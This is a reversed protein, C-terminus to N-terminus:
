PRVGRISVGPEQWRENTITVVMERRVAKDADDDRIRVSDYEDHGITPIPLRPLDFSRDILLSFDRIDALVEDLEDKDM